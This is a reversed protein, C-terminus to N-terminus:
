LFAAASVSPAGHVLVSQYGSAGSNLFSQPTSLLFSQLVVSPLESSVSARYFRKLQGGEHPCAWEYDKSYM